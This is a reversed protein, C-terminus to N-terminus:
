PTNPRPTADNAKPTRPNQHLNILSAHGPQTIRDQRAQSAQRAATIRNVQRSQGVTTLLAELLNELAMKSNRSAALAKPTAPRAPEPKDGM